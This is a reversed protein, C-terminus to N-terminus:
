RSENDWASVQYQDVNQFSYTLQAGFIIIQWSFNLFILFLPIAALIGYAQNLRGVFMQTNLYLYQFLIFIIGAILASRLAYRYEVKVAPIYKYMVSLTAVLIVYFVAYGILKFVFRAEKLDIGYLNPLNTAYVVGSGFIIIIFPSLLLVLFYFGFRMYIKRPIKLIGWVNNFVREVQFMMWLITWLFFIASVLGLGGGQASDIIGAARESLLTVIEPNNPLAMQLFETIKGDLGLGGTIAFAFAILPVLALTIFYSLAVCQFGMRNETFTKFTIRILKVIRVLEAYAPTASGTDLTWIRDSFLDTIKNTLKMM